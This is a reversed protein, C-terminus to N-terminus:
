VVTIGPQSLTQSVEETGLARAEARRHLAAVLIAAQKGYVPAIEAHRGLLGRM